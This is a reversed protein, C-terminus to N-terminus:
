CFWKTKALFFLHFFRTKKDDSYITYHSKNCLDMDADEDTPAHMVPISPKEPLKHMLVQTHSCIAKIAFLEEDVTLDM